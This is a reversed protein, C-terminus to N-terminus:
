KIKFKNKILYLLFQFPKKITWKGYQKYAMAGRGNYESIWIDYYNTIQWLNHNIPNSVNFKYYKM